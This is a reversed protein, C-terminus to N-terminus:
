VIDKEYKLESYIFGNIEKDLKNRLYEKKYGNQREAESRSYYEQILNFQLDYKYVVRCKNNHRMKEVHEKSKKVGKGHVETRYDKNMDYESEYLFVMNKLSTLKHKCCKSINSTTVNYFQAAETISTFKNILNGSKCDIVVINIKRSATFKQISSQSMKFETGSICKDTMNYGSLYSDFKHIYSEEKQLLEHDSLDNCIELIVVEFTDRGHKNWSNQLKNSHHANHKLYYYHRRMRLRFNKCSGIYWKSTETNYIGYIVSESNFTKYEHLKM